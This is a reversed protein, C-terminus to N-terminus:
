RLKVVKYKRDIFYIEVDELWPDYRRAFTEFTKRNGAGVILKRWKVGTYKELKEMVWIYEIINSMEAMAPGRYRFHKFDGVIRREINVLDFEKLKGNIDLKEKYLPVGIYQSMTRRADDETIEENGYKNRMGKIPNIIGLFANSGSHERSYETNGKGNISKNIFSYKYYVNAGQGSQPARVLSANIRINYGLERVWKNYIEISKKSRLASCVAPMRNHLGMKSHIDGARLIISELGKDIAPKIYNHFIYRRIDDVLGLLM